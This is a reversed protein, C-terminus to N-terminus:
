AIVCSSGFMDTKKKVRSDEPNGSMRQYM